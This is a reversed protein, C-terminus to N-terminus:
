KVGGYMKGLLFEDCKKLLIVMPTMLIFAWVVILVTYFPLYVIKQISAIGCHVLSHLLWYYTSYKCIFMILFDVAKIKSVLNVIDRIVLTLAPAIVTIIAFPGISDGVKIRVLMLVFLAVLSLLFVLMNHIHNYLKEYLKYKAFVYGLMFVPFYHTFTNVPNVIYAIGQLFVTGCLEKWICKRRVSVQYILLALMAEIYFRVYWSTHLLNTKILLINELIIGAYLEKSNFRMFVCAVLLISWYVVLLKVIKNLCYKGADRRGLKSYSYFLGYGSLFAFLCVCLKCSQALFSTLNVGNVQIANFADPILIRNPWGFFHHYVMMITAIGKILNSEDPTVGRFNDNLVTKRLTTM